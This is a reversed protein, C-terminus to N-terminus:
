EMLNRSDDTQCVDGEPGPSAHKAPEAGAANLRERWKTAGAKLETLRKKAGGQTARVAEKEDPSLEMRGPPIDQSQQRARLYCAVGWDIVYSLPYAVVLGAVLFFWSGALISALRYLGPESEPVLRGDLGWRLWRLQDGGWWSLNECLFYWALWAFAAVLLFRWMGSVLGAVAAALTELANGTYASLIGDPEESSATSRVAVAGLGLAGLGWGTLGLGALVRVEPRVVGEQWDPVIVLATLLLSETGATLLLISGTGRWGMRAAVSWATRLSLRARFVTQVAASRAAAKAPRSLGWTGLVIAGLALIISAAPRSVGLQLVAQQLGAPTLPPPPEILQRAILMGAVVVLALWLMGLLAMVLRSLFLASGGRVTDAFLIETRSPTVPAPSSTPAESSPSSPPTEGGNAAPVSPPSEVPKKNETAAPGEVYLENESTGDVIWRLKLYVHSQLTWFLSLSVVAGAGVLWRWLPDAPDIRDQLLEAVAVVPLASIAVALGCWGIFALPYQMLYSYGRALADFHDSGEAAITAPMIVFSLGGVLIVVAVLALALLVPMLILLLLAGLVPVRSIVGLILGPLLICGLFIVLILGVSCLSSAKGRVLRSPSPDTPRPLQDPEDAGRNRILEARAIWAGALGWVM